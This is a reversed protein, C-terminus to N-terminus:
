MGCSISLNQASAPAAPSGTGSTLRDRDEEGRRGLVLRFRRVLGDLDLSVEGCVGEAKQGARPPGPKERRAGPEFLPRDGLRPRRAAISEPVQGPVVSSEGIEMVSEPEERAAEDIDSGRERVPRCIKFKVIHSWSIVTFRSPISSSGLPIMESSSSEVQSRSLHTM